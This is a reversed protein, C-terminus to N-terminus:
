DAQMCSYVLPSVRCLFGGFKRQHFGSSSVQVHVADPGMMANFNKQESLHDTVMMLFRKQKGKGMLIHKAYKTQVKHQISTVM